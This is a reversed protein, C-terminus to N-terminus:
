QIRRGRSDYPFADILLQRGAGLMVASFSLTGLSFILTGWGFRSELGLMAMHFGLWMSLTGMPLFGIVLLAIGLRRKARRQTETVRPAPSEGSGPREPRAPNM